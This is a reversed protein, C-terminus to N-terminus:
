ITMGIFAMHDRGGGVYFFRGLSFDILFFSYFFIDESPYVKVMYETVIGVRVCLQLLIV